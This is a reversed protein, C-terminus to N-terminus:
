WGLVKGIVLLLNIWRRPIVAASDARGQAIVTHVVMHCHNPGGRTMQAFCLANGGSHFSPLSPLASSSGSKIM